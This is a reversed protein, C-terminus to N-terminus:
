VNAFDRDEAPIKLTEYCGYDSAIFTTGGFLWCVIDTLLINANSIPNLVDLATPISLRRKYRSM